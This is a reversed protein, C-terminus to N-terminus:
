PKPGPRKYVCKPKCSESTASPGADQRWWLTHLGGSATTAVVMHAYGFSDLQMDMFDLLSRELAGSHLLPGAVERFKPTAAYANRTQAFHVSWQATPGDAAPTEIWAFDVVGSKGAVLTPFATDGTGRNVKVTKSWTAGHDTSSAM